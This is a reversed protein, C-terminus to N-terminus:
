SAGVGDVKRHSVFCADTMAAMRCICIYCPSVKEKKTYEVFRVGKQQGGFSGRVIGGHVDESTPAEAFEFQLICGPTFEEVKLDAHEDADGGEGMTEDNGGEEAGVEPAGANDGADANADGNAAAASPAATNEAIDAHGRKKGRPAANAGTSPGAQDGASEGMPTASLVDANIEAVGPIEM